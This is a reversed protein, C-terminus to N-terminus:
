NRLRLVGKFIAVKLCDDSMSMDMADAAKIGSAVSNFELLALAPYSNVTESSAQRPRVRRLVM